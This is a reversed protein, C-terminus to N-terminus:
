AGIVSNCNARRLEMLPRRLVRDTARPVFGNWRTNRVDDAADVGRGSAGRGDVEVEIDTKDKTEHSRRAAHRQFAAELQQSVELPYPISQGTAPDIISWTVVETRVVEATTSFCVGM